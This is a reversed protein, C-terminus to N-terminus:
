SAAAGAAVGSITVVPADAFAAAAAGVEFRTKPLRRASVTMPVSAGEFPDPTITLRAGDWCSEFDGHRMPERWDDCFQLSLLDAIRVYFYDQHLDEETRPTAAALNATRLQEMRDFFERWGPDARYKDFLHLAHQAVLAAAYPFRSLREVGRPWIGRRIDDPAHVYDLLEGSGTDVLPTADEDIWGDDHRKTAFLIEHHRASQLFGDRRWASIIREALAAHDVQKILLLEDGSARIIL